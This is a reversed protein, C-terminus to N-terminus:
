YRLDFQQTYDLLAADGETRVRDIIGQVTANVDGAGELNADLMQEFDQWFGEAQSNLRRITLM